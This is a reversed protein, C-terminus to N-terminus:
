PHQLKLNYKIKTFDTKPNWAQCLYFLSWKSFRLFLPLGHM